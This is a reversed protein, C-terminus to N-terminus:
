DNIHNLHPKTYIHKTYFVTINYISFGFITVLMQNESIITFGGRTTYYEANPLIQSTMHDAGGPIQWRIQKTKFLLYFQNFNAVFNASYM